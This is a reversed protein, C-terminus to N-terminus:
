FHSGKYTMYYIDNLLFFNQIANLMQCVFIIGIAQMVCHIVPVWLKSSTMAKLGLNIKGGLIPLLHCKDKIPSEPFLSNPM